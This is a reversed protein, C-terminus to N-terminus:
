VRFGIHVRFCLTEFQTGFPPRVRLRLWPRQRPRPKGPKNPKPTGKLTGKFYPKPNLALPEKLPVKAM